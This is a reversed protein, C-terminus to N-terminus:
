CLAKNVSSILNNVSSTTDPIDHQSAYLSSATPYHLRLSEKYSGMGVNGWLAPFDCYCYCCIFLLLDSIM